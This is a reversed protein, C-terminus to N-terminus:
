RGADEINKDIKTGQCRNCILFFQIYGFFAM